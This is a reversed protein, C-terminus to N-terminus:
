AVHLADVLSAENAIHALFADRAIGSAIEGSAHGGMGDAVLWVSADLDWGIADENQDYRKGPDTRGCFRTM